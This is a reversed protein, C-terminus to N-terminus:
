PPIVIEDSADKIGDDTPEQLFYDVFFKETVGLDAEEDEPLIATLTYSTSFELLYVIWGEQFNKEATVYKLRTPQLPKIYLGFTRLTLAKFVDQIMPLFKERRHRENDKTSLHKAAFLIRIDVDHEFKNNTIKRFSGGFAAVNVALGSVNDPYVGIDFERIKSQDLGFAKLRDIIGTEIAHLGVSNPSPVPLPFVAM